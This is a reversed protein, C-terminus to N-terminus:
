TFNESSSTNERTHTGLCTKAVARVVSRGSLQWAWAFVPVLSPVVPVSGVAVVGVLVVLAVGVGLWFGVGVYGLGFGGGCPFRRGEVRPMYCFDGGGCDASGSRRGFSTFMIGVGADEM